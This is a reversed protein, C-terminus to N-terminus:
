AANSLAYFIKAFSNTKKPCVCLCVSVSVCVSVCVCVCVRGLKKWRCWHPNGSALLMYLMSLHKLEPYHSYAVIIKGTGSLALRQTGGCIHQRITIDAGNALKLAFLYSDDIKTNFGEAPPARRRHEKHFNLSRGARIETLKTLSSTSGISRARQEAGAAAWFASPHARWTCLTAHM